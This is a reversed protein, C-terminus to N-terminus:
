TPNGDHIGRFLHIKYILTPFNEFNEWCSAGVNQPKHNMLTTMLTDFFNLYVM